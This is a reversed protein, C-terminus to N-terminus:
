EDSDQPIKRGQSLDLGFIKAIKVLWKHNEALWQDDKKTPTLAIAARTIAYLAIVVLMIKESNEM